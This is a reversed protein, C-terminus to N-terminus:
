GSRDWRVRSKVARELTTVFQKLSSGCVQCLRRRIVIRALEGADISRDDQSVWGKLREIDARVPTQHKQICMLVRLAVALNM